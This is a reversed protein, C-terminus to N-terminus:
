RSTSSSIAVEVYMYHQITVTTSATSPATNVIKQYQLHSVSNCLIDIRRM